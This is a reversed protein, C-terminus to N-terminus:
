YLIIMANIGYRTIFIRGYTIIFTFLELITTSHLCFSKTCIHIYKTLAAVMKVM